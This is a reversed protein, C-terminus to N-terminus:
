RTRPSSSTRPASPARTPPRPTTPRTPASSSPRSKAELGATTYRPKEVTTTVQYERQGDFINNEVSNLLKEWEITRGENGPVVVVNGANDFDYSASKPKVTLDSYVAALRDSM